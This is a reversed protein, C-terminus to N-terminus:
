YIELIYLSLTCNYEYKTSTLCIVEHRACYNDPSRYREPLELTVLGVLRTGHM